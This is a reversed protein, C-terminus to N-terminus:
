PLIMGLICNSCIEGDKKLVHGKRGINVSHKLASPSVIEIDTFVNIASRVCTASKLWSPMNERVFKLGVAAWGLQYLWNTYDDVNNVINLKQGFLRASESLWKISVTSPSRVERGNHDFTKFHTFTSYYTYGGCVMRLDYFYGSDNKSM